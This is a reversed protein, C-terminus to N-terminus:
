CFLPSVFYSMRVTAIHGIEFSVSFISESIKLFNKLLFRAQVNPIVLDSQNPSTNNFDGRHVTPRMWLLRTWLQWCPRQLLRTQQDFLRSLTRIYRWKCMGVGNSFMKFYFKITKEFLSMIKPLWFHRKYGESARDEAYPLKSVRCRKQLYGPIM